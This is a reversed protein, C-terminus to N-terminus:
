KSDGKYIKVTSLKKENGVLSLLLVVAFLTLILTRM